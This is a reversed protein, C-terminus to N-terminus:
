TCQNRSDPGTCTVAIRLPSDGNSDPANPFEIVTRIVQGNAMSDFADNVQNLTITRTVM